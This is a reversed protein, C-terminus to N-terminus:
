SYCPRGAIFPIIEGSPDNLNPPSNSVYRFLNPDGAGVSLPDLQVFRGANPDYFRARFYYLGAVADYERGTFKFRDGNASNSESTM